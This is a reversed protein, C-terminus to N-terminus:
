KSIEYDKKQIGSDKSICFGKNDEEEIFSILISNGKNEYRFSCHSIGWNSVHIPSQPNSIELM